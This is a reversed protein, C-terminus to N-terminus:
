KKGKRIYNAKQTKTMKSIDAKTADGSKQWWEKEPKMKGEKQHRRKDEIEYRGMNKTNSEAMQGLTTPEGKIFAMPAQNVVIKLNKSECKECPAPQVNFGHSQEFEHNCDECKYDYTPM